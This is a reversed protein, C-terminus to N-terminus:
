NEDPPPISTWDRYPEQWRTIRYQTSPHIDGPLEDLPWAGIAEVELSLKAKFSLGTVLFVTQRDRKNNARQNVVFLTKISGYSTMGVEERLERLITDHKSEGSRPAGGPLYWGSAYSQKLLILRNEEDLCIARAGTSRPKTISWAAKRLRQFSGLAIRPFITAAGTREILIM